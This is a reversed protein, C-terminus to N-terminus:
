FQYRLQLKLESRQNGRILDLGSGLNELDPYQFRAYRVWSNLNKTLKVQVNLYYRWGRNFYSPFSAAFLLDNEYAYIRAAYSATAFYAVRINLRYAAKRYFIDQYVMWGLEEAAPVKQYSVGELRARFSWVPTYQMHYQLRLQWRDIPVLSNDPAGTPLYNEMRLRYRVRFTYQDKRNQIWNFQSMLDMGQARFDALYSPGPFYFIDVYTNWDFKRPQQYVFGMYLGRENQTNSKEGLGNGWLHKYEKGYDRYVVALSARKTLGALLGTIFARGESYSPNFAYEGFFYLNRFTYNGYVNMTLLNDGEFDYYNRLTNPRVKYADYRTHLVASGLTLSRKRYVTNLGYVLQALSNKNQIETPTRHYGTRGFSSVFRGSDTKQVNGDVYQFAIFPTFELARFTYTGTIGRFFNYELSSTYPKAGVGQKAVQGVQTGKGFGLGGWALLGQAIQLTYDGLILQKFSKWKKLYLSAAYFDFGEPQYRSFFPEGADQKMTIAIRFDDAFHLRYRVLYRDLAGLYRSRTPDVIKYGEPTELARAYRLLLDQQPKQQFINKLLQRESARPLSVFPLLLQITNADWHPIAQLELLSTFPGYENRYAIFAQLQLANIFGLEQLDRQSIAQISQPNAMYHQWREMWETPDQESDVSELLQEILNNALQEQLSGHLLTDAAASLYEQASLISTLFFFIFFLVVSKLVRLM